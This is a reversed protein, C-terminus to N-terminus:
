TRWSTDAPTPLVFEYDVDAAVFPSVYLSKEAMARMPGRASASGKLWYNHRGGYTNNVEALVLQLHGDRDYCYFLSIPNFVYGFYRLHTLLFVPGDPLAHGALEASARLRDRLARHPVGLHDRDDFTACNWRNHSTLWSVAMADAVRDIDIFAM